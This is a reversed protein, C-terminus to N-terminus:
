RRIAKKGHMNKMAKAIVRRKKDLALKEKFARIEEIKLAKLDTNIPNQPATKFGLLQIVEWTEPLLCDQPMVQRAAITFQKQFFVDDTNSVDIPPDMGLIHNLDDAATNLVQRGIHAWVGLLKSTPKKPCLESIKGTEIDYIFVILESLGHARINKLTDARNKKVFSVALAIMDQKKPKM